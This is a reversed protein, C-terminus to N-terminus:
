RDTKIVEIEDIGYYELIEVHATSVVQGAFLIVTGPPCPAVTHACVRGVAQQANITKYGRELTTSPPLAMRPLPLMPQQCAVPRANEFIDGLVRDLAEFDADSNFPSPMFLVRHSSCLEPVIGAERLRRAIDLHSLSNAAPAFLIKLPEENRILFSSYKKKIQDTKEIASTFDIDGVSLARVTYDMSYMVTYPPSTTSLLNIFRRIDETSETDRTHLFASPTLAGLTKSASDVVLDAGLLVPHYLKLSRPLFRIYGGHANDVIVTVGLERCIPLLELLNLINGDYDCYTFFIAVPRSQILLSRLRDANVKNRYSMIFVPSLNFLAAADAFCRHVPVVAAVTSGHPCAYGIAAKLATSCGATCYLTDGSEFLKSCFRESERLNGTPYLANDTGDIETLDLSYLPVDPGQGKHAPVCFSHPLMSLKEIDRYFM